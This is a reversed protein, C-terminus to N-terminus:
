RGAIQYQRPTTGVFAKFRRTLHSQDTFGTDLAVQAIPHGDALMRRALHIRQQLRYTHPPMGYTARFRRLFHYPSLNALAALEDLAINQTLNDLLHARAMQMPESGDNQPPPPGRRTTYETVLRSLADYLNVQKELGGGHNSMLTFLNTFGRWIEPDQIVSRRFRLPAALTGFVDHAIGQMLAPEVYFMCYILARNPRPNCAHVQEPNILAINGPGVARTEGDCWFDTIGQQVLSVAYAEHTHKRFVQQRYHSSRAEIGPLDPDRMFTVLSNQSQM